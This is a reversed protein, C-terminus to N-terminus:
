VLISILHFRSPMRLPGSLTIEVAQNLHLLHAVLVKCLILLREVVELCTSTYGSSASAPAAQRGGSYSRSGESTDYSSKYGSSGSSAAGARRARDDDETYALRSSHEHASVFMLFFSFSFFFFYLLNLHVVYAAREERTKPVQEAIVEEKEAPEERFEFDVIACLM